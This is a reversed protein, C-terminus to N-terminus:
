QGSLRLYIQLVAVGGDPLKKIQLILICLPFIPPLNFYLLLQLRFLFLVSAPLPTMDALPQGYNLYPFYGGPPANGSALLDLPAEIAKAKKWEDIWTRWDKDLAEGYLQFTNTILLANVLGLGLLASMAIRIILLGTASLMFTSISDNAPDTRWVFSMIAVIFLVISWTLWVAPMSLLVWVNWIVSQSSGRASKAWEVAAYTKRMTGFRIIYMCGFLLSVLACILSFLAAYRTVPDNAATGIQLITLIATLLMVSVINFTEWERILSDIFSEWSNKLREYQPRIKPAVVESVQMNMAMQSKDKQGPGGATEFVMETIEYISLNAEDFIRSVRSFYLSPLRLLLHFYVQGIIVTLIFFLTVPAEETTRM